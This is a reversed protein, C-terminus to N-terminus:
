LNYKKSDLNLQFNYETKLYKLIEKAADGISEPAIEMDDPEGYRVQRMYIEDSIIDSIRNIIYEEPTESNNEIFKKIKM